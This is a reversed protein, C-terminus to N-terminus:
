GLPKSKISKAERSRKARSSDRSELSEFALREDEKRERWVQLEFEKKDPSFKELNRRVHKEHSLRQEVYHEYRSEAIANDYFRGIPGKLLLTLAGLIGGAGTLTAGCAFGGSTLTM